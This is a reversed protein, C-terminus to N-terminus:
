STKIVDKCQIVYVKFVLQKILRRIVVKHSYPWFYDHATFIYWNLFYKTIFSIKSANLFTESVWNVISGSETVSLDNEWILM